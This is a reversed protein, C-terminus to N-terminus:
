GKLSGIMIGKIFFKQIFPYLLLIPASAIFILAYKITTAMYQMRLIAELANADMTDTTIDAMTQNQLLINRLVLQLPYHDSNSLYILANFYENWRGVGYFLAVVAVIPASLPLAIQLFIRFEKAGDMRASEYLTDSISSQFYVRSIIVNYVSIGGLMILTYPKNILGLSKVVLYTPVMGGGFYMPILFYLAIFNRGILDKKSWVYAAPITLALNLCTGFFTNVITNWYGQWIRADRFINQYAELTFGRVSFYVNGRIVEYPDSLSALVTFYLPYAMVLVIVCLVAINLANIVSEWTFPVSRLRDFM